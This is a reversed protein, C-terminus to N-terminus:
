GHHSTTASQRPEVAGDDDSNRQRLNIRPNSAVVECEAIVRRQMIDHLHQLVIKSHRASKFMVAAFTTASWEVQSQSSDINQLAQRLSDCTQSLPASSSQM